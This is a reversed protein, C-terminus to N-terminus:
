ARLWATTATSASAYNYVVLMASHDLATDITYRIDQAGASLNDKWVTASNESTDSVLVTSGGSATWTRGSNGRALAVVLGGSAGPTFDYIHLTAAGEGSAAWAITQDIYSSSPIENDEIYQVTGIVSAGYSILATTEGGAATISFIYRSTDGFLDQTMSVGGVTVGSVTTNSSNESCCVILRSGATLASGFTLTRPSAGFATEVAGSQIVAM